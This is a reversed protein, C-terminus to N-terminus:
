LEHEIVYDQVKQYLKFAKFIHIITPERVCCENCAKHARLYFDSIFEDEDGYLEDILWNYVDINMHIMAGVVMTYRFDDFYHMPISKLQEEITYLKAFLAVNSAAYTLGMTPLVDLQELDNDLLEAIAGYFIRYDTYQVRVCTTTISKVIPGIEPHIMLATLCKFAKNCLVMSLVALLAEEKYDDITDLLAAANDTEIASHLQRATNQSFYISTKIGTEKFPLQWGMCKCIHEAIPSSKHYKNILLALAEETLNNKYASEMFIRTEIDMESQMIESLPYPVNSSDDANTNLPLIEILRKINWLRYGDMCVQIFAQEPKGRVLKTIHSLSTVTLDADMSKLVEIGEYHRSEITSLVLSDFLAPVNSPNSKVCDMIFSDNIFLEKFFDSSTDIYKFIRQMGNVSLYHKTSLMSRLQNRTFEHKLFARIVNYAKYVFAYNFIIYIHLTATVKDTSPNTPAYDVIDHLYISLTEDPDDRQIAQNLENSSTTLPREGIYEMFEENSMLDSKRFYHYLNDPIYKFMAREFPTLKALHKNAENFAQYM